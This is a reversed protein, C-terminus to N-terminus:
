HVPMFVFIHQDMAHDVTDFAASLDMSMLISVKKAEMDWLADNITKLLSTECSHYKRYASQYKPFLKSGM